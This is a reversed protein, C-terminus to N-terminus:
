ACALEGDVVATLRKRVFLRARHVRTKVVAISLGLTQAIEVNSLGEVDRLVLASRYLEPLADIAAELAARLENLAAPDSVRASWDTVPAAHRGHEDFVPLVDDLSVDGERGRRGRRKQCAANAVIRYLWSGFASDGRFTDIKRVVTWFADQVVEEADAGNGTIGVALRYARAGYRAILREPASTEHNQLAELLERDRDICPVSAPVSAIRTTTEAEIVM